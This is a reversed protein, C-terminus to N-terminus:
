DGRGSTIDGNISLLQYFFCAVCCILFITFLTNLLRPRFRLDKLIVVIATIVLLTLCGFSGISLIFRTPLRPTTRMESFMRNFQPIAIFLWIGALVYAVALVWSYPKVKM